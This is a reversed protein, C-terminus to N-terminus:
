FNYTRKVPSGAGRNDGSYEFEKNDEAMSIMYDIYKLIVAITKLYSEYVTIDSVKIRTEGSYSTIEDEHLNYRVGEISVEWVDAFSIDSLEFSYAIEKSKGNKFGIQFTCVGDSTSNLYHSKANPSLRSEIDEQLSPISFDVTVGNTKENIFNQRLSELIAQQRSM